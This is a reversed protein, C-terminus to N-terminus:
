DAEAIVKAAKYLSRFNADAAGRLARIVEAQWGSVGTVAILDDFADTVEDSARTHYNDGMGTTVGAWIILLFYGIGSEFRGRLSIPGGPHGRGWDAPM